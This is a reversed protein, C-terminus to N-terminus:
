AAVLRRGSGGTPSGPKLGLAQLAPIPNKQSGDLELPFLCIDGEKPTCEGLDNTIEREWGDCVKRFGALYGRFFVTKM